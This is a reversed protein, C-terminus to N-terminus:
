HEPMFYIQSSEKDKSPKMLLDKANRYVRCVRIRFLLQQKIFILNLKTQYYGVHKILNNWLM